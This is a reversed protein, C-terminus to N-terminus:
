FSDNVLHYAIEDGLFLLLWGWYTPLLHKYLGNYAFCLLALALLDSWLQLAILGELLALFRHDKLAMKTWIGVIKEAM